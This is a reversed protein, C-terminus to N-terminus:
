VQAKYLIQLDIAPLLYLWCVSALRQSQERTFRLIQNLGDVWNSFFTNFILDFDRLPSLKYRTGVSSVVSWVTGRRHFWLPSQRFPTLYKPFTTLPTGLPGLTSYATANYYSFQSGLSIFPGLSGIRATFDRISFPFYELQVGINTVATSGKM